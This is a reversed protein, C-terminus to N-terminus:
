QVPPTFKVTGAPWDQKFRSDDIKPNRMVNTYHIIFYDGSGTEFFKQQLPLWSAEDIWLQIKSFQNRIQESKPTLELWAVKHGDLAGEGQLTVLYPKSLDKGSTGFGLLFFQDVMDRHKGLDYEEVRKLGPTYIYLRDGRRLITRSDPSELEIRMNDGRAWIKGSETSKDNVVVTVKTRDVNATMSHYDRANDDLQQFIVNLTLGSKQQSGATLGVSLLCTTLSLLLIRRL